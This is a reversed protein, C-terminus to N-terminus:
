GDAPRCRYGVGFVTEVYRPQAPDPEIKKRLNRIHVDVTREVGEYSNGQLRELLFQRSFVRGPAAMLTALLEFESPTLAVAERGLTVSRTSRDLVLDAVRYVEAGPAPAAGARRLVARVRALLEKMSFPKTVYDDAGLELGAVKDSEELRATLLIIPASHQQRYRQMFAFGDLNPMMLDLLILDPRERRAVALAEAGDGASLVRYDHERLYEAVLLRVNAHDDVVLITQGMGNSSGEGARDAANATSGQNYWPLPSVAQEDPPPLRRPAAPLSSMALPRACRPSAPHCPREPASGCAPTTPAPPPLRPASSRSDEGPPPGPGAAGARFDDCGAARCQEELSWPQPTTLALVRTAATAPAAKLRRVMELGNMGPRGVDLMILDFQATRAYALGQAGDAATVVWHGGCALWRALRDRQAPDKDIVLIDAM